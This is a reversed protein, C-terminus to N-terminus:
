LYAQYLLRAQGYSGIWHWLKAKQLDDLVAMLGSPKKPMVIEPEAMDGTLELALKAARALGGLEDILGLELAQDGLIIRGDAFKKVAEVDLERSEAIVKVFQEFTRDVISQILSRDDEAFSRFPSGSDKFRGSKVVNMSFGTDGILKTFNPMMMIVGISGTLTGNNAVIKNCGVAAYLGGSAAVNALSCVVPKKEGALKIARYIEESAGVSGGPSDIRVVIAKLDDNGIAKKLSENFGKSSVIEGSLEVVGVAHDSKVSLSAMDIGDGVGAKSIALILLLIMVVFLGLLGAFAWGLFVVLKKLTGM